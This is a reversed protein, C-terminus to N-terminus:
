LKLQGQNYGSVRRKITSMWSPDFQEQPLYVSHLLSTKCSVGQLLAFVVVRNPAFRGQSISTCIAFTLTVRVVELEGRAGQGQLVQPQRQVLAPLAVHLVEPELGDKVHQAM